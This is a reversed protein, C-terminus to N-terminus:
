KIFGGMENFINEVNSIIFDKQRVATVEEKTPIEKTESIFGPSIVLLLLAAAIAFVVRASYRYFEVTKKKQHNKLNETDIKKLVESKINAPAQVLGESEVDEIMKLLEDDSMYQFTDNENSEIKTKIGAIDFKDSM